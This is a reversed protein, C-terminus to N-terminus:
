NKLVNKSPNVQRFLKIKNNIKVLHLLEKKIELERGFHKFYNKISDNLIFDLNYVNERLKNNKNSNFIYKSLKKPQFNNIQIKNNIGLPTTIETSSLLYHNEPMDKVRKKYPNFVIDNKLSKFLKENSRNYRHKQLKWFSNLKPNYFSRERRKSEYNLSQTNSVLPLKFEKSQQLKFQRFYNLSINLDNLSENAKRHKKLLDNKINVSCLHQIKQGYKNINDEKVECNKSTVNNIYANDNSNVPKRFMRETSELILHEFIDDNM